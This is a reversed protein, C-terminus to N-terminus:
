TVSTRHHRPSYWACPQCYATTVALALTNRQQRTQASRNM